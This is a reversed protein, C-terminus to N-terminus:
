QNELRLKFKHNKGKAHRNFVGLNRLLVSFMRKFTLYSKMKKKMAIKKRNFCILLNRGM